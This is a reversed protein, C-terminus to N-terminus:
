FEDSRHRIKLSRAIDPHIFFMSEQTRAGSRVLARSREQRARKAAELQNDKVLERLTPRSSEEQVVLALGLTSCISMFKRVGLEPLKGNELNSITARSMHLKAALTAQTMCVLKRKALIAQGLEPMDM